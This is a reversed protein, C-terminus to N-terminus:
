SNKANKRKDKKLKALANRVYIKHKMDQLMKNSEYLDKTMEKGIGSEDSDTNTAVFDIADKITNQIFIIEKVRM